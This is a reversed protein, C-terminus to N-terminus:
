ESKENEITEIIKELIEQEKEKLIEKEQNKFRKLVAEELNEEM